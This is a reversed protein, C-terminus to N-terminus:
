RFRIFSRIVGIILFCISIALAVLTVCGLATWKGGDVDYFMGLVTQLATTLWETVANFIGFMDTLVPYANEVM